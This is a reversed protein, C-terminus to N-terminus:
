LKGSSSRQKSSQSSNMSPVFRNTAGTTSNPAVVRLKYKGESGSPKPQISKWLRWRKNLLKLLEHQQAEAQPPPMPREHRLRRQIQEIIHPKM